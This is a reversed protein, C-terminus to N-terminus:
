WTIFVEKELGLILSIEYGKTNQIIIDSKKVPNALAVVLALLALLKLGEILWGSKKTAQKLMSINSFYMSSLGKKCFKKCMFYIILVLFAYPYEFTINQM